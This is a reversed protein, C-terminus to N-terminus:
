KKRGSKKKEGAKIKKWNRVVQASSRIKAKGFVHPHRRKLKKILVDIVGEIDFRNKKSAIEAHFMVQLLVDGLEEKIHNFNESKIARILELTEERLSGVLSKHTQKKDWPCGNPGNLIRFIQKLEIFRTKKM